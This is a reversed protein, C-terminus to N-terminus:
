KMSSMLACTAANEGAIRGFVICEALNGGGQYVFKFASSIEGATYLNRIPKGNRNLAERDGNALIGGKTNPGGPYLALAYYPPSELPAMNEPHSGLPDEEGADCYRNYESVTEFLADADMLKRNEPHGTIKQALEKITSAQLIWGKDIAHENEEGWEIGQYGAGRLSVVSRRKRLTEDFILWSPVRPYLLKEVNFRVGEKYFFYRSPDKTITREAAYRKGFNDVVIANPRGVVPTRLGIKLGQKRVPIAAIMRAAAKSMKSLGSGIDMAMEIGTGTNAPSGYFAWGEVGPGELFNLRLDKNYEFGGSTLVTANAGCTVTKGRRDAVIGKVVDDDVVFDAAETEWLVDINRDMIGKRLCTFFAEGSEKVSKPDDKQCRNKNNIEGSYTSRLVRYASESAGPFEPFAAGHEEVADYEPDLNQMWALNEPAYEAWAAALETAIGAPLEGELKWPLNDGSFMALAYSELADRDGTPHPSHFAGGSMRTNSYYSDEAQKEVILVDAGRDAAAIAACAGAGGFGIVLVDVQYDWSEFSADQSM